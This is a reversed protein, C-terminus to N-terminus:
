GFRLCMIRYVYRPLLIYAIICAGNNHKPCPPVNCQKRMTLSKPCAKGGNSPPQTVTRRRYKYSAAGCPSSCSSWPRWDSVQCDVPQGHGQVAKPSANSRADTTTTNDAPSRTSLYGPVRAPAATVATATAKSTAYHQSRASSVTTAAKMLPKKKGVIDVWCDNNIRYFFFFYSSIM